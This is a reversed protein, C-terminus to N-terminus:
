DDAWDHFDFHPDIKEIKLETNKRYECSPLHHELKNNLETDIGCFPCKTNPINVNPITSAM